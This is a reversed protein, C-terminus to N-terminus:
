SSAAGPDPEDFGVRELVPPPEGRHGMRLILEAVLGLSFLQVGLVGLFLGYSLMPRDGIPRHGLLWLVAGVLTFQMFSDAFSM